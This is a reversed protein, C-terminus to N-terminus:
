PRRRSCKGIMDCRIRRRRSLKPMRQPHLTEAGRRNGAMPRAHHASRCRALSGEAELVGNRDPQLRSQLASSIAPERRCGRDSGPSGSGQPGAFQGHDGHRWPAAIACSIARGVRPLCRRGHPRGSRAARHPWGFAPGGYLDHNELTRASCRGPLARRTTFARLPAGDKHQSRDRRHLCPPRSESRTARRVM